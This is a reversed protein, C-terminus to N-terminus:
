MTIGKCKLSYNEFGGSAMGTKSVESVRTMMMMMMMMM